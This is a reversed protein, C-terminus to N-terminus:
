NLFDKLNKVEKKRYLLYLAKEENQRIRERSINYDNSIEELTMPRNGDLGFRKIIVDKLRKNRSNTRLNSTNTDFTENLIKMLKSRLESKEVNDIAKEYNTDPIFNLLEDSKDDDAKLQKNLSNYSYNYKLANIVDLEELETIKILDEVSPSKGNNNKLYMSTAIRIKNIKVNLNAPIRIIENTNYIAKRITCKIWWTAYTSLKLNKDLEFRDLAEILGITGEQILDKYDIGRGVFNKAISAVLRLNSEILIERAQMDGNKYKELLEREKEPSLIPIRSIDKIYSTSTTDEIEVNLDIQEDMDEISYDKYIIYNKIFVKITHNTLGNYFKEFKEKNIFSDIVYDNILEELLDNLRSKRELIELIEDDSINPNINEKKFITELTKFVDEKKM